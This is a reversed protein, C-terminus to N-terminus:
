EQAEEELTAVLDKLVSLVTERDVNNMGLTVLNDEPGFEPANEPLADAERMADLEEHTHLGVYVWASTPLLVVPTKDEEANTEVTMLHTIPESM